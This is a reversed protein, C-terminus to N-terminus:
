DVALQRFLIKSNNENLSSSQLDASHQYTFTHSKNNQARVNKRQRERESLITTKMTLITMKEMILDFATMMMMSFSHHNLSKRIFITIIFCAAFQICSILQFVGHCMNCTM